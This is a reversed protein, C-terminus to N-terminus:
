RALKKIILYSILSALLCIGGVAYFGTELSILDSVAGVFFPGLFMGLAYTSQFFGMAAGRAETPVNKISLGMLLPFSVGKGLGNLVQAAVLVNFDNIFPVALTFAGSLAFGVLVLNQAKVRKALTKGLFLAGLATPIYPIVVLLGNQAPTSGLVSSAYTTTFSFTTGFTIFQSVAAIMSVTVLTKDRLLAKFDFRQAASQTEGGATRLSFLLAIIGAAFSLAFASKFSGSWQILYAGLLMALMQGVNNYFSLTGIASVSEGENYFSSYLVTFNVWTSAATGALVRGFFIVYINESSLLVLASLVAFLVGATIFRGHSGRKDAAAGLPVRLAFQVFGYSGTILGVLTGSANLHTLYPAFNSQYAYLAFWFFLTIIHLTRRGRRVSPPQNKTLIIIRGKM